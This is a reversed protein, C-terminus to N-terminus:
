IEEPLEPGRTQSSPTLSVSDGSAAARYIADIIRQDALGEEGPTHPTEQNRICTAFHDMELSFQNKEPLMLEFLTDKRHKGTGTLTSYKLKSGRYGFAPSMEAFAEDCEWRMMTSRHVNYAANCMAILGSPFKLTFTSVAEVDTFRPDGKPQDLTATVAIPEEGSLFRAANLCYLGVDPLSGGGAMSRKQRWQDPTGQNQSNTALMVHPKGFTNGRLMKLLERNLVDYQQRYAIMLKVNAAKCATIMAECDAVSTAMPKECLVHKGIRAGREVFERHMSNPLVIYIAEVAPLQGLREYHAYDTIHTEGIGYQAGIKLAKERDGSVLAVPKSYKSQAFAPLIEELALAGLGVIAFGVRNEASLFPGPIISPAESEAHLPALQVQSSLPPIKAEISKAAQPEASAPIVGVTTAAAFSIDRLFSRRSLAQTTEM